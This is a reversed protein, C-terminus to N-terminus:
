DRERVIRAPSGVAISQEPLSGRVVSNAGVVAGDGITSGKLIACGRGIWVDSGIVTPASISPQDIIFQDRELGHESDRISTFEAVQSHHGIKVFETAAILVHHMIKVHDEIVLVAGPPVDLIVGRGFRVGQGIQLGSHPWWRVHVNSEAECGRGVSAGFTSAFVAFSTGRVRRQARRARWVTPATDM